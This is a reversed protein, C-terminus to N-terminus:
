RCNYSQPSPTLLGHLYRAALSPTDTFELSWDQCLPSCSPFVGSATRRRGCVLVYMCMHVCLFTCMSICVCLTNKEALFSRSTHRCSLFGWKDPAELINPKPNGPDPVWRWMGSGGASFQKTESGLDFEAFYAHTKTTTQNTQNSPKPKKGWDGM